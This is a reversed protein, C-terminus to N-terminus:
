EIMEKPQWGDEETYTYLEKLIIGWDAWAYREDLNEYQDHMTYDDECMSWNDTISWLAGCEKTVRDLRERLREVEAILTNMLIQVGESGLLNDDWMEIYEDIDIM